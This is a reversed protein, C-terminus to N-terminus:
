GLICTPSTALTPDNRHAGSECDRDRWHGPVSM